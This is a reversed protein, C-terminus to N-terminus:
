HRLRVMYGVAYSVSTREKDVTIRRCRGAIIERIGAVNQRGASGRAKKRRQTHGIEDLSGTDNTIGFTGNLPETFHNFLKCNGLTQSSMCLRDGDSTM